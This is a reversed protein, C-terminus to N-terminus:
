RAYNEDDSNDKDNVMRRSFMDRQDGRRRAVFGHEQLLVPICATAGPVVLISAGFAVRPQPFLHNDGDGARRRRGSGFSWSQVRLGGSGMPGLSFTGHMTANAPICQRRWFANRFARHQCRHAKRDFIYLDGSRNTGVKFIWSFNAISRGHHHHLIAMDGALQRNAGDVYFQDVARSLTASPRGRRGHGGDTSSAATEHVARGQWTVPFCCPTASPSPTTTTIRGHHKRSLPNNADDAFHHNIWANSVGLVVLIVSLHALGLWAMAEFEILM